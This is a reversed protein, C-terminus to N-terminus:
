PGRRFGPRTSTPPSMVPSSMPTRGTVFRAQHAPQTRGLDLCTRPSMAPRRCPREEPSSIWAGRRPAWQRRRPGSSRETVPSVGLCRMTSGHESRRGSIDENVTMGKSYTRIMSVWFPRKMHTWQPMPKGRGFRVPRLGCYQPAEQRWRAKSARRRAARWAPKGTAPGGGVRRSRRGSRYSLPRVALRRWARRSSPKGSGHPLRCVSHPLQALGVAVSKPSCRSDSRGVHRVQWSITTSWGGRPRGSGRLSSGAIRARSLRARASRSAAPGGASAM